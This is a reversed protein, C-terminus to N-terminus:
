KISLWFATDSYTASPNPHHFQGRTDCEQSWDPLSSGYWVLCAALVRLQFLPTILGSIIWFWWWWWWVTEIRNKGFQKICRMWRKPKICLICSWHKGWRKKNVGCSAMAFSHDMRAINKARNNRIRVMAPPYCSPLGFVKVRRFIKCESPWM